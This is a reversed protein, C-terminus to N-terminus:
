CAPAGGYVLARKVIKAWSGWVDQTWRHRIPQEIQCQVHADLSAMSLPQHFEEDWKGVAPPWKANQGSYCVSASRKWISDRCLPEQLLSCYLHLGVKSWLSPQLPLTASETNKTSRSWASSSAFWHLIALYATFLGNQDDLSCCFCVHVLKFNILHVTKASHLPYVSM